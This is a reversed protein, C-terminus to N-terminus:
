SMEKKRNMIRYWSSRSTGHTDRPTLNLLPSLEIRLLIM